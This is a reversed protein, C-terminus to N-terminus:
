PQLAEEVALRAAEAAREVAIVAEDRQHRLLKGDLIEHRRYKAPTLDYGRTALIEHDVVATHISTPELPAVDHHLWDNLVDVILNVEDYSLEITSRGSTGLTTADVLLIRHEKKMPATLCWLALPISTDRRLRPPLAVVAEVVGANVLAARIAQERGGRWLTGVPLVVFARGNPNLAGLAVQPWAMDASAPPPSGYVWKSNMYLDADGWESVGFPADLIVADAPEDFPIHELSNATRIDIPLGYLYARQRAIRCADENIDCGLLTPNRVSKLAAHILAGGDGSAPDLVIAAGAALSALIESLSPPTDFMTAFRDVSHLGDRLDEFIGARDMMGDEVMAELLDCLQEIVGPTVQAAPRALGASVLGGLEPDDAEIAAGAERLRAILKGDRRERLHRWAYEVLPHPAVTEEVHCSWELYVLLSGVLDLYEASTLGGRLNDLVRRLVAAAPVPRDIKGNEILWREVERLDFLLGTPTTLAPQPFDSHRKRWNSVASRQVSAIEAIEPIGILTPEAPQM